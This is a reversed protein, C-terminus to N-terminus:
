AFRVVNASGLGLVVAKEFNGYRGEPFYLGGHRVGLAGGETMKVLQLQNIRYEPEWQAATAVMENYLLLAIAPTLDESLLSRLDAGFTLRMVRSGVRTHWIKGLSQALHAPGTIVKGTREDIGSRIRLAGAM